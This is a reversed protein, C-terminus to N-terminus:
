IRDNFCSAGESLSPYNMAEKKSIQKSLILYENILVGEWGTNILLKLKLLLIKLRKIHESVTHEFRKFTQNNIDDQFQLSRESDKFLIVKVECIKKEM